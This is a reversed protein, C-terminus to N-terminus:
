SILTCFPTYVVWIGTYSRYLCINLVHNNIYPVVLVRTYPSILIELGPLVFSMYMIFNVIIDLTSHSHGCYWACQSHKSLLACISIRFLTDPLAPQVLCM